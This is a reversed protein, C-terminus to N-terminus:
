CGALIKKFIDPDKRNNFRFQFEALYLPLYERSVRHYTGIIGRKLLSWFNEIGNAHVNGRVYIHDRHQIIEHPYDPKLNGYAPHEDTALLSVENSVSQKVFKNLTERRTNEIMRCVVNGKRSIAGIVATKGSAEGGTQHTKNKWHRNKDKGGVYTEDVEVEGMLQPFDKDQMAARVRQCIYWATKYSGSGIMRHIQLASIGKKSQSMLYIVEFWTRLPYNTNEFITKTIVSFRYGNKQCNRCQWHFPKSLTYVKDNGCRPCNVGEPWRMDRLLAKCAEDTAYDRKIDALTLNPQTTLSESPKM